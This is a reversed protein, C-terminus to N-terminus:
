RIQRVSMATVTTDALVASTHIPCVVLVAVSEPAAPPDPQAHLGIDFRPDSQVCDGWTFLRGNSEIADATQAWLATNKPDAAIQDAAHDAARVAYNTARYTATGRDGAADAFIMALLLGPLILLLTVADSM